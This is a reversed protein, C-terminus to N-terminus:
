IRDRVVKGFREWNFGTEIRNHRLTPLQTTIVLQTAGLKATHHQPIQLPIAHATKFKAEPFVAQVIQKLTQINKMGYMVVCAPQHRQIQQIVTQIRGPFIQAEYQSRSKLFPLQPLALWSYYWAHNHPSPLPLLSILAENDLALKTKQYSLANPLKKGSFGHGFAVLNKWGNHLVAKAGFRYEFLNAHTGAKNEELATVQKYLARVDCLQADAKPHHKHFYGIKEAVEEPLDGGGEENSIFWLRADWSGYGYFHDIWHVLQSHAILM